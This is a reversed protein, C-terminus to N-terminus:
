FLWWFTLNTRLFSCGRRLFLHQFDALNHAAVDEEVVVLIEEVLIRLGCRDTCGVVVAFFAEDVKPLVGSDHPLVETAAM